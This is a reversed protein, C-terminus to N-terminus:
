STVASVVGWIIGAWIFLGALAYVFILGIPGRDNM